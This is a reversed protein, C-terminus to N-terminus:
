LILFFLLSCGMVCYGPYVVRRVSGQGMSWPVAVTSVWSKLPAVTRKSSFWSLLLAKPMPNPVKGESLVPTNWIRSCETSSPESFYGTVEGKRWSMLLLMAEKRFAM